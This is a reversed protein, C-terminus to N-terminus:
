KLIIDNLTPVKLKSGCNPCRGNYKTILETPTPLGYFDQGVRVFKHLIFGCNKCRYIVVM